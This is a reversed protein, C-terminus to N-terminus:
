GKEQVLEAIEKKYETTLERQLELAKNTSDVQAFEFAGTKFESFKSFTEPVADNVKHKIILRERCKQPLGLLFLRGQDVKFLVGKRVLHGSISAYQRCYDKLQVMNRKMRMFENLFTMSYTMQHRDDARFEVKLAEM